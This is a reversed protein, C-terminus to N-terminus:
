CTDDQFFDIVAKAFNAGIVDKLEDYTANSLNTLDIHSINNYFLYFLKLIIIINSQFVTALIKANKDGIKPILKISNVLSDNPKM